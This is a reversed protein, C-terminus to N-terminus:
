DLDLSVQDTPINSTKCEPCLRSQWTLDNMRFYMLHCKKCNYGAKWRYVAEDNYKSAM